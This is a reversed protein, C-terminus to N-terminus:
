VPHEDSVARGVVFYNRPLLRSWMEIGTAMFCTRSYGVLKGFLLRRWGPTTVRGTSPEFSMRTAVLWSHAVFYHPQAPLCVLPELGAAHMMRMLDAEDFERVHGHPDGTMYSRNLWKLWRESRRTPVTIVIRGGPRLRSALGRLIDEADTLHELVEQCLIVQYEKKLTRLEDISLFMRVPTATLGCKACQELQWRLVGEDCDVYTVESAGTAAAAIRSFDGYGPGVDLITEAPFGALYKSILSEIM